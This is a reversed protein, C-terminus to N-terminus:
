VKVGCIVSLLEMTEENISPVILTVSFILTFLRHLIKGREPLQVSPLAAVVNATGGPTELGKYLTAPFLVASPSSMRQCESIISTM